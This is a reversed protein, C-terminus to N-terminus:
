VNETKTWKMNKSLKPLSIARKKLLDSRHMALRVQLLSRPTQCKETAPVFFGQNVEVLQSFPYKEVGSKRGPRGLASKAEEVLAADFTAVAYQNTEEVPTELADIGAQTIRVAVNGNADTVEPNVEMLGEAAFREAEKAPGFTGNAGFAAVQALITMDLKAM